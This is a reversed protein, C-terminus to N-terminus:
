LGIEKACEKCHYHGCDDDVADDKKIHEGCLNCNVMIEKSKNEFAYDVTNHCIPCAFYMPKTECMQVKCKKCISLATM